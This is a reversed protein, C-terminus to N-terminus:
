NPKPKRDSVFEQEVFPFAVIGDFRLLREVGCILIGITEGGVEEVLGNIIEFHGLELEKGIKDLKAFPDLLKGYLGSQKDIEGGAGVGM